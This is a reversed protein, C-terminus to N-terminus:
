HSFKNCELKSLPLERHLHWCCEERSRCIKVEHHFPEKEPCFVDPDMTSNLQVVVVPM